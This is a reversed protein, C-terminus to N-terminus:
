IFAFFDEETWRSQFTRNEDVIIRKNVADMSPCLVKDFVDLSYLKFVLIRNTLLAVSGLHRTNVM